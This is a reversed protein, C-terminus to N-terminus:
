GTPPLHCADTIVGELWTVEGEVSYSAQGREHVQRLSGDAHRIRYDLVFGTHAATAQSIEQRVRAVDEPHILSAYSRIRNGIFDKGPYGCLAEIYDSIFAVTWHEDLACRYVAGPINRVLANFSAESRALRQNALRMELASMILHGATRLLRIEHNDRPPMPQGYGIAIFGSLQGGQEVPVALGGEIRNGFLHRLSAMEEPLDALTTFSYVEDRLFRAHAPAIDARALSQFDPTLPKSGYARWEHTMRYIDQDADLHFFGSIDCEMLRGLRALAWHVADDPDDESGLEVFRTAIEALAEQQARRRDLEATRALVRSELEATVAELRRRTEWSQCLTRALQFVEEENFPKRLLVVDHGLSAQLANVDYDSYATAIVIYIAPDQARLAMATRLGDWGPPMRMDIFALQFPKGMRLAALHLAAAAEGQAAEALEFSVDKRPPTPAGDILAELGGLPSTPPQLIQAYTARISADDDVVLIRYPKPMITSM